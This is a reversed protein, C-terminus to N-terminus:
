RADTRRGPKQWIRSRQCYDAPILRRWVDQNIFINVFGPGAIEVRAILDAKNSLKEAIAKAIERPNKKEIGALVLAFNTSFDGQGEHRPLEVTFKGAAGASWM